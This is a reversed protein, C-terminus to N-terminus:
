EGLALARVRQVAATFTEGNPLLTSGPLEVFFSFSFRHPVSAMVRHQLTTVSCFRKLFSGAGVLVEHPKLVVDIWTGKYLVQLGPLAGGVFLTLMSFDQHAPFVEREPDAEGNLAFAAKLVHEGGRVEALPWEFYPNLMELVSEGFLALHNYLPRLARGLEEQELLRSPRYDFARRSNLPGTRILGDRSPSVYGVGTGSNYRPLLSRLEDDALRSRIALAREILRPLLMDELLMMGTRQFSTLMAGPSCARLLQHPMYVDYPVM